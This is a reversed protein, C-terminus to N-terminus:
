AELRAAVKRAATVMRAVHRSEILPNLKFAVVRALKERTSRISTENATPSEPSLRWPNFGSSLGQQQIMPRWMDAYAMGGSQAPDWGVSRVLAATGRAEGGSFSQAATSVNPVGEALIGRHFVSALEADAFLLPITYGCDGNVDHRPILRLASIESLGAVLERARVRMTGLIVDLKSMQALALAGCLEPLRFNLMPVDPMGIAEADPMQKVWFNYMGSFSVVRKWMDASRCVVGGGEGCTIIKHMNFSFCGVDGWTGLPKGQYSGGFSQAVDEIVLIGHSEAIQMVRDMPTPLGRWHVVVLAKTRPSIRSELLDLDLTLTEDYDVPIPVAGVAIAANAISFWGVGAVLVEDGPGIGLAFMAAYLANACSNVAHFHPTGLRTRVAEEFRHVYSEEFPHTIRCLKKNRVVDLIALEEEAGILEAGFGVFPIEELSDHRDAEPGPTSTHM